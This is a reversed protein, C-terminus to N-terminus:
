LQAINSADFYENGSYRCYIKIYLTELLYTPGANKMRASETSGTSCGIEVDMVNHRREDDAPSMANNAHMSYAVQANLRRAFYIINLKIRRRYHRQRDAFRNRTQSNRENQQVTPITM